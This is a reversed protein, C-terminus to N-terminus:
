IYNQLSKVYHVIISFYSAKACYYSSNNYEHNHKPYSSIDVAIERTIDYKGYYYKHIQNKYMSFLSSLVLVNFLILRKVTM